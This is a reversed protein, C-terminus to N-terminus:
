RWIYIQHVFIFQFQSKYRNNIVPIRYINERRDNAIRKHKGTIVDTWKPEISTQESVTECSSETSIVEKMSSKRTHKATSFSLFHPKIALQATQVEM